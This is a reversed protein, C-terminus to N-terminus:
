FLSLQKSKNLRIVRVSLGAKKALYITHGTGSSKGNWFAVVFRAAKIIIENRMLPAKRGYKKYDPKFVKLPFGFNKAFRAACSDVGTAGGSVIGTTDNPLSWFILDDNPFLNRSGVVAVFM